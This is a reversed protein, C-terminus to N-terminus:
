FPTNDYASVAAQVPAGVLTPENVSLEVSTRPVGDNGTWPEGVKASLKGTVTVTDGVVLSHANQFWLTFKTKYVKGQREEEEVVKLGNGTRNIYEVRVNELKVLAM